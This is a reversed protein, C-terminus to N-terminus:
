RAASERIARLVTDLRVPKPILADAGLARLDSETADATDGSLVLITKLERPRRDRIAKLIDRGTGDPLHLDLLLVDFPREYLIRLTEAVTAAEAVTAGDSELLRRAATRTIQEDEVLLIRSPLPSQRRGEGRGEGAIVARGDGINKARSLSGFLDNHHTTDLPQTRTRVVGPLQFRPSSPRNTEAERGALGSPRIERM